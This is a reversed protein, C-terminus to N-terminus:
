KHHEKQHPHWKVMRRFHYQDNVTVVAYFVGNRVGVPSKHSATIIESVARRAYEEAELQFQHREGLSIVSLYDETLWSLLDYPGDMISGKIPDTLPCYGWGDSGWDLYLYSRIM